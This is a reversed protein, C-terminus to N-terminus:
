FYMWNGSAKHLFGGSFSACMGVHNSLSTGGGRPPIQLLFYPSVHMSLTNISRISLKNM